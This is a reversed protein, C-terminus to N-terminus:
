LIDPGEILMTRSLCTVRRGSCDIILHGTSDIDVFIGHLRHNNEIVVVPQNLGILKQKYEALLLQPSLESLHNFQEIWESAIEELMFEHDANLCMSTAISRLEIPFVTQNINLGVGIVTIRKASEWVSEILIGAVKKGDILIDNPWKVSAKIDHHEFLRVLALSTLCPLLSQDSEGKDKFLISCLLNKNEQSLWKRDYQGRGKTQRYSMVFSGNALIENNKLCYDNTSDIVDFVHMPLQIKEIM